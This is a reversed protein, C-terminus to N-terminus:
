HGQTPLAGLPVGSCALLHGHYCGRVGGRLDLWSRSSEFAALGSDSRRVGGVRGRDLVNSPIGAIRRRVGGHARPRIGPRISVLRTFTGGPDRSLTAVCCGLHRRTALHHLLPGGMEVVVVARQSGPRHEHALQAVSAVLRPTAFARSFERIWKCWRLQPTSNWSCCPGCRGFWAGPLYLRVARRPYYSRPEGACRCPTPPGVRLRQACLLDVSCGASARVIALPTTDLLWWVLGSDHSAVLRVHVFVVMFAAVGRLGDLAELRGSM